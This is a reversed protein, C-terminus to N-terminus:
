RPCRFSCRTATRGRPQVGSVVGRDRAEGRRAVRSRLPMVTLTQANRAAVTGLHRLPSKEGYADVVLNELMGPSARGVRLKGLDRELSEVALRMLEDAEEPDYESPPPPSASSGSTPKSADPSADDADADDDRASAAAKGARKKKGRRAELAHAPRSRAFGASPPAAPARRPRACPPASALAAFARRALSPASPPPPPRRPRARRDVRADVRRERAVPPHRPPRGRRVRARRRRPVPADDDRSRPALALRHQRWHTALWRLFRRFSAGVSWVTAVIEPSSSDAALAGDALAVRSVSADRRRRCVPSRRTMQSARRQWPPNQATNTQVSLSARRRACRRRAGPTERHRASARHRVRQGRAADGRPRTSADRDSRRAGALRSARTRRNRM